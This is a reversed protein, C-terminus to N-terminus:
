IKSYIYRKKKNIERATNKNMAPNLQPTDRNFINSSKYRNYFMRRLDTM